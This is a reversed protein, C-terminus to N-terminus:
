VRKIYKDVIRPLQEITPQTFGNPAQQSSGSDLVEAYPYNSEISLKNSSLTTNSRAHGSSGRPTKSILLPLAEAMVEYPVKKTNKMRKNFVNSKVTIGM